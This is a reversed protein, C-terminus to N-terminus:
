RQEKNLSCMVIKDLFSNYRQGYSEWTFLEMKDNVYNRVGDQKCHALQRKVGKFLSLSTIDEMIYINDKDGIMEKLTPGGTNSSCVIPLGCAAAQCLVLGFGDEYSPFIFVKAKKYYDVLCDEAVPNVHVFNIENPFPLDTIAGVHLIRIDTNRFADVILASGKRKGWTGVVICDFENTCHTPYFHKLSVGYPNIFLKNRDYGNEIFSREVFSSAIAVYDAYSYEEEDICIYRKNIHTQGYLKGLRNFTKIHSSGRDLICIAGYKRKAKLMCRSYNPSQAIFVDCRPMLCYVIFDLAEMFLQRSFESPLYKRLVFFPAMFWILSTGKPYGYKILYKKPTCAYFIVNHGQKSLERACDLLHARGSSAVVIKM